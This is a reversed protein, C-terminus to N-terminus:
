VVAASFPDEFMTNVGSLLYGDKMVHIVISDESSVCSKTRACYRLNFRRDTNTKHQKNHGWLLWQCHKNKLPYGLCFIQIWGFANFNMLPPLHTHPSPPHPHLWMSDNPCEASKFM